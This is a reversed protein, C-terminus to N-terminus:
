PPRGDHTNTITHPLTSAPRPISSMGADRASPRPSAMSGSRDVLLVYDIPRRAIRRIATLEHWSVNGLRCIDRHLETTVRLAIQLFLRELLPFVAITVAPFRGHHGITAQARASIAHDRGVVSLFPFNTPEHNSRQGVFRGVMEPSAPRDRPSDRSRNDIGDTGIPLIKPCDRRGSLQYATVDNRMSDYPRTDENLASRGPAALASNPKPRATTSDQEVRFTDGFTAVTGRDIGEQHLHDVLM